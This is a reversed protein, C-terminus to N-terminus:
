SRRQERLTTVAVVLCVAPIAAYLMVSAFSSLLPSNTAAFVLYCSYAIYLGVFLAGEWRAMTKGTFFLPLALLSAGLMVPMDLRLVQPDVAVDGPALSATIGLVCLINFINSGVVNGVALDREGRLAAILATILEPLSTGIAVITLGIIVESVGLHRAFTVSSEVLWRAGLVLLALGAAILVLNFLWSHRRASTEGTEREQKEKMSLHVQLWIYGAMLAALALGEWRNVSGSLAFLWGLLSVGIMIPLDLRILQLHITLPIIMASLGVVLLLNLINSGVINGLAIDAENAYVAQLSVALEPASTALAVITLGIVLPSVGLAVALRSAGRVLMEAGLVLLALSFVFLLSTLM